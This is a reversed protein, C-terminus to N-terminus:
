GPLSRGALASLTVAQYKEFIGRRFMTEIAGAAWPHNDHFLLIDGDSPVYASSWATMEEVSQMGYDRPDASWLAITKGQRWLGTMKAWNLEGKPPRMATPTSGTLERLLSDTRAVEDLFQRAGTQSPESHSWTHNGLEHGEDVIRRVLDPHQEVSKGVVFFTACVQTARLIELLRVTHVPHPGDDFTLALRPREGLASSPGRTLLRQRPLCATLLRKSIQRLFSM